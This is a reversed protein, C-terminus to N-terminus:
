KSDDDKSSLGRLLYWLIIAVIPLGILFTLMLWNLGAAM